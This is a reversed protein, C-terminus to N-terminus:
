PFVVGPKNKSTLFNCSQAIKNKNTQMVKM